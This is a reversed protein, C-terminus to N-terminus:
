EVKFDISKVEGRRNKYTIKYDGKFGRFSIKGSHDATLTLNTTWEKNILEDLVYYSPKKVLNTDFLGSYSPEGPAAGGDVLNWWTIGAVNPHSFWLRYLDRTIEKQIERGKPTDFAASITVESVYVPRETQQM